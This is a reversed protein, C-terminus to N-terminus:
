IEENNRRRFIKIVMVGAVFEVFLDWIDFTGKVAPALQLLEMGGEFLFVVPITVRGGKEESLSLALFMLSYAWLFDFLYFRILRVTMHDYDAAIHLRLGTWSDVAQVFLVDPCFLYYLVAGVIVPVCINLIKEWLKM